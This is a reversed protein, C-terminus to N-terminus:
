QYQGTQEGQQESEPVRAGEREKGESADERPVHVDKGIQARDPVVTGPETRGTQTDSAGVRSTETPNALTLIIYM